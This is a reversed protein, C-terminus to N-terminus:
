DFGKKSFKSLNEALGENFAKQLNEPLTKIDVIGKGKGAGGPQLEVAALVMNEGPEPFGLSKRLETIQKVADDMDDAFITHAKGNPDIWAVKKKLPM